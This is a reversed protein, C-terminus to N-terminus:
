RDAIPHSPHGRVNVGRPKKAKLLAVFMVALHIGIVVLMVEVIHMSASGATRASRCFSGNSSICTAAATAHM